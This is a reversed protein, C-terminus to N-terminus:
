KDWESGTRDREHDRRLDEATREITEIAVSDMEILTESKSSGSEERRQIDLM